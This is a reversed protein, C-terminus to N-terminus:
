SVLRARLMLKKLNEFAKADPNVFALPAHCTSEYDRGFIGWRNKCGPHEDNAQCYPPKCLDQPCNIVHAWAFDKLEDDAPGSSDFECELGLWFMFQDSVMTCGIGKGSYAPNWGVTHGLDFGEFTFENEHMFVVFDLANIRAEGTLREHIANEIPMLEAM